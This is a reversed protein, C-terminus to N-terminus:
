LTTIWGRFSNLHLTFNEFISGSNKKIVNLGSGVGKDMDVFRSLIRSQQLFFFYEERNRIWLSKIRIRIWSNELNRIMFKKKPM